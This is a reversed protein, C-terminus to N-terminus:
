NDEEFKAQFPTSILEAFKRCQDAVSANFLFNSLAENPISSQEAKLLELTRFCMSDYKYLSGQNCLTIFVHAAIIPADGLYELLNVEENEKIKFPNPSCIIFELVSWLSPFSRHTIVSELNLSNDSFFLERKEILINILSRMIPAMISSSQESVPLENEIYWLFVLTNGLARMGDFFSRLQPHSITSYADNNFAFYGVIDDKSIAPLLRIAGAVQTYIEIVKTIQDELRESLRHIITALEGPSLLEIMARIHEAGIYEMEHRHIKAYEKTWKETAYLETLEATKPSTYRRSVCNLRWRSFDLIGYIVDTLKSELCLPSDFLRARQWITEFDDMLLHNDCLLAHSTNAVRVLHAVYPTYRFDTLLGIYNELEETLRANLKATTIQNFDIPTGLLQMKNQQVMVSYRMPPPTIRGICEPPLEMTSATARCFRYFTDAFTFAIMDVCLEVEAEVERYLYQSNFTYIAAYAADNYLEFPFFTSDHLAPRNSQNLIHEALIFPLSSRVPYQVEEDVDLFTERLWLFSLNTAEKITPIYSLLPYWTRAKELFVKTQNVHKPRFHSWRFTSVSSTFRGKETILNILQLRLIDLQHASIPIMGPDIEHRKIQKTKEPLNSNPNDGRWNGFLDRIVELLRRAEDDSTHRARVLPREITNQIYEQVEGYIQRDIYEQIAPEAQITTAALTKIYGILEVLANKEETDYNYKVARDYKLIKEEPNENEINNRPCILKVATQSQISYTMESICSLLSLLGEETVEEKRYMDSVIRLNDRYLNRFHQINSVVRKPKARELIEEPKTALQFKTNNYYGNARPLDYGPAISNDGYLPIVPNDALVEWVGSMIPANYINQPSKKDKTGHFELVSVLTLLVAARESPIMIDNKYKYICYEMLKTVFPLAKSTLEKNEELLEENLYLLTVKKTSLFMPLERIKRNEEKMLDEPTFCRKYHSLDNSIGTKLLKLQDLNAIIAFLTIFKEFIVETPTYEDSKMITAINKAINRCLQELEVLSNYTPVFVEKFVEWYRKKFICANRFKTYEAMDPLEGDRPEPQEPPIGTKDKDTFPFKRSDALAMAEKVSAPKMTARFISRYAYLFPIYKRAEDIGTELINLHKIMKPLEANIPQKSENTAPIDLVQTPIDLRQFTPAAPYSIDASPALVDPDKSIATLNMEFTLSSSTTMKVKKKKTLLNNV